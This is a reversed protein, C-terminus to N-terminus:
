GAPMAETRGAPKAVSLLAPGCPKLSIKYAYEDITFLLPEANAPREGFVHHFTEPPTTMSNPRIAMMIGTIARAPANAALRATGAVAPVNVVVDGIKTTSSIPTIRMTPASVNTGASASPGM